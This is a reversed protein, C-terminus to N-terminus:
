RGTFRPARKGAFATVGEAFDESGAMERQLEAEVHLQSEVREYLWRNLERKAGWYSRTPTPAPFPTV